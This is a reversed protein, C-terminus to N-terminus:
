QLHLEWVGVYIVSLVGLLSSQKRSLSTGGWMGRVGTPEEQTGTLETAPCWVCVICVCM